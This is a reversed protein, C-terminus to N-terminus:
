AQLMLYILHTLVLWNKQNVNEIEKVPSNAYANWSLCGLMTALKGIM